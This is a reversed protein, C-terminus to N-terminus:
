KRPDGQAKEISYAGKWGNRVKANEHMMWIDQGWAIAWAIETRVGKSEKWGPLTLIILGGNAARQMTYNQRRWSEADSPLTYLKCSDHWHIIPSYPVWGNM